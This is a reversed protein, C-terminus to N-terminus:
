GQILSLTKRLRICEAELRALEKLIADASENQNEWARGSESADDAVLRMIRKAEVIDM